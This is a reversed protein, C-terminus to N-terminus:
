QKLKSYQKSLTVYQKSLTGYQKSLTRYHKIVFMYQEKTLHAAKMALDAQMLMNYCGLQRVKEYSAFWSRQEKTFIRNTTEM